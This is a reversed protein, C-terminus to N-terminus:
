GGALRALTTDLPQSGPPPATTTNWWHIASIEDNPVFQHRTTVRGAYVAAYEDRPPDALHFRAHGALALAALHLGTEERLERVAAQLPTEGPEIRGGPLEWQRRHRDFVLLVSTGHRVAVLAAPM